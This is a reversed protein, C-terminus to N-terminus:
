ISKWWMSALILAEANIPFDIYKYQIESATRFYKPCNKIRTFQLQSTKIPKDTLM